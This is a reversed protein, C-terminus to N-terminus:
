EHTRCKESGQGKRSLPGGPIRDQLPHVLDCLPLELLAVEGDALNVGPSLGLAPLFPHAFFEEFQQATQRVIFPREVGPYRALNLRVAIDDLLHNKFSQRANVDRPIDVPGILRAALRRNQEPGAMGLLSLGFRLQRRGLQSELTEDHQAEIRDPLAFSQLGEVALDAPGRGIRAPGAIIM